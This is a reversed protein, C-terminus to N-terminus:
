AVERTTNEKKSSDEIKQVILLAAPAVRIGGSKVAVDLLNLLANAEEISLEIIM